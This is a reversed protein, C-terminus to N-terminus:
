ASPDTWRNALQRRCVTFIDPKSVPQDHSRNSRRSREASLLTTLKERAESKEIPAGDSSWGLRQDFQRFRFTEAEHDYWLHRIKAGWVNSSTYQAVTRSSQLEVLVREALSVVETGELDNPVLHKYDDDIAPTRELERQHQARQRERTELRDGITREGHKGDTRQIQESM